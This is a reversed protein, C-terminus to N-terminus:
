PPSEFVALNIFPSGALYVRHSRVAAGTKPM